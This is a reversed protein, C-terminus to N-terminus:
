VPMTGDARGDVRVSAEFAGSDSGPAVAPRNSRHASKFLREARSDDGGLYAEAAEDTWGHRDAATTLDRLDAATDAMHAAGTVVALWAADTPDQTPMASLRAPQQQGALGVYEAFKSARFLTEGTFGNERLFVARKHGSTHAWEVVAVVAEVGHDKVRDAVGWGKPPVDRVQPHHARYAAWATLVDASPTAKAKRPKPDAPKEPPELDPVLALAPRADIHEEQVEQVEQYTYTGRTIGRTIWPHDM